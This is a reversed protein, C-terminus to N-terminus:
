CKVISPSSSLLDVDVYRLQKSGQMVALRRGGEAVSALGATAVPFTPLAAVASWGGSGPDPDRVSHSFSIGGVKVKLTTAM